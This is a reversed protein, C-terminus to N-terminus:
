TPCYNKRLYELCETNKGREAAYITDIDWPCGNEHLYKLTKLYGSLATATCTNSDWYYGNQHLFKVCELNGVQAAYILPHKSSINGCHKEHLYVVCELNGSVIAECFHSENMVCQNQQCLKLTELDGSNAAQQAVDSSKYFIPHFFWKRVDANIITIKNCLWAFDSKKYNLCIQRIFFKSTYKLCILTIEADLKDMTKIWYHIISFTDLFLLPNTILQETEM